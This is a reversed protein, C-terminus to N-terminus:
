AATPGDDAVAHAQQHRAWAWRTAEHCLAPHFHWRLLQRETAEPDEGLELLSLALHRSRRRLQELDPGQVAHEHWRAHEVQLFEPLREIHRRALPPLKRRFALVGPEEPHAVEFQCCRQLTRIFPSNRGEGGLGLSRATEAIPLEFGSPATELGAAVRRLLWTTSPGLVSLWFREVYPSRPDHGLADIVQDPWPRIALAGTPLDSLTARM